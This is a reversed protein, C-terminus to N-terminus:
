CLKKTPTSLCEEISKSVEDIIFSKESDCLSRGLRTSVAKVCAKLVENKKEEGCSPREVKIVLSPVLSLVESLALKFDDVTKPKKKVLVGIFSIFIALCTLLVEKYTNLFDFFKSM